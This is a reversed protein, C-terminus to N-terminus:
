IKKHRIIVPEKMEIKEEESDDILNQGSSIKGETGVFDADIYDSEEAMKGLAEKLIDRFLIM